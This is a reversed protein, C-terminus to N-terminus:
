QSASRKPRRTFELLDNAAIDAATFEDCALYPTEALRRTVLKLWSEFMDQALCRWEQFIAGGAAKGTLSPRCAPLDNAEIHRSDMPCLQLRAAFPIRRRQFHPSIGYGNSILYVIKLQAWENIV